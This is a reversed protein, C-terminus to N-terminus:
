RIGKISRRLDYRRTDNDAEKSGQRRSIVVAFSLNDFIVVRLEAQEEDEIVGDEGEIKDNGGEGKFVLNEVGL